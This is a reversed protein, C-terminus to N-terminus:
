INYLILSILMLINMFHIINFQRITKDQLIIKYIVLVMFIKIPLFLSVYFSGIPMIIIIYFLLLFETPSEFLDNRDKFVGFVSLILGFIIPYWLYQKIIYIWNDSSISEATNFSLYLMVVSSLVISIDINNNKRTRKDLIFLLSIFLILLYAYLLKVDFLIISNQIALLKFLIIISCFFYIYAKNLIKIKKFIGFFPIPRINYITIIHKAIFVCMVILYINHFVYGLLSLAIIALVSQLIYLTSVSNKHSINYSLLLHHIHKKDAQFINEGKLMRRIFAYTTDIIPIGMFIILIFIYNFSKLEGVVLVGLVSISYGLMYSGTDGLFIKAPYSNRRLFAFLIGIISFFIIKFESDLILLLSSITIIGLGSSLGDLGDILNYANVVSIIFFITLLIGLIKNGMFDFSFFEGSLAIFIVASVLQALLKLKPQLDNKDDMLGMVFMILLGCFYAFSLKFYEPFYFNFVLLSLFIGFFIIIGGGTPIDLNHVKRNNPKDIFDFRRVIRLGFPMLVFIIAFSILFSYLYIFDIM